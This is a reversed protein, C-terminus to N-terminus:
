VAHTIQLCNSIFAGLIPISRFLAVTATTPAVPSIPLATQRHNILLVPIPSSRKTALCFSGKSDKCFSNSPPVIFFRSSANGSASITTHTALIGFVM